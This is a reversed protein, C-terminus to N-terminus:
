APDGLILALIVLRATDPWAASGAAVTASRIPPCSVGRAAALPCPPHTKATIKGRVTPTASESVYIIVAM